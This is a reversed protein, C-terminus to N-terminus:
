NSIHETKISNLTYNTKQSNITHETKYTNAVTYLDDSKGTDVFGTVTPTMPPSHACTLSRVPAYTKQRTSILHSTSHESSESSSIQTKNM